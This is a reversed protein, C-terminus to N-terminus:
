STVDTFGGMYVAMLGIQMAKVMQPYVNKINPYPHGVYEHLISLRYTFKNWIDWM